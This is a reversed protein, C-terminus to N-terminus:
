NLNIKNHQLADCEWGIYEGSYQLALQEFNEVINFLTGDSLIVEQAVKVVYFEGLEEVPVPIESYRLSIVDNSQLNVYDVFHYMDVENEFNFIHELLYVQTLDKGQQELMLLIDDTANIKMELPSPLLFDFYIEWNTDKQQLVNEINEFQNLHEIILEPEQCYFYMQVKNNSFIHGAYLVNPLAYLQISIKFINDIIEPYLNPEFDSSEVVKAPLSFQVLYHLRESPYQQMLESNVSFFAWHDGIQSRYHQWNSEM